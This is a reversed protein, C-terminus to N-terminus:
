PEFTGLWLSQAMTFEDTGASELVLITRDGVAIVPSGGGGNARDAMEAPLSAVKSDVGDHSVVVQGDGISVLGLPGTAVSGLVRATIPLETSGSSTWVTM